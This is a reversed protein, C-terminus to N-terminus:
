LGKALKDVTSSLSPVSAKIAVLVAQARAQLPAGAPWGAQPVLAVKFGQAERVRVAALSGGLVGGATSLLESEVGIVALKTNADLPVVVDLTSGDPAAVAYSEVKAAVDPRHRAGTAYAVAEAVEKYFTAAAAGRVHRSHEVALGFGKAAFDTVQAPLGTVGAAVSGAYLLALASPSLAAPDKQVVATAAGLLAAAGDKDGLMALGWGGQVAQAASLDGAGAKAKDALARVTAADAKVALTALAWAAAAADAPADVGGKLAKSLVGLLAADPVRRLAALGWLAQAAERGGLEGAKAVLGASAVKVLKGDQVGASGFGWLLRALDAASLEASKSESLDAVTAFLEVDAIGAKGLAEVVYSVESPKISKLNAALPGALEALTRTHEVNAASLAWSLNVLSPGDLSPGLSAAKELVKGWLRRNGRAGLYALAVAADAVDKGTSPAEPSLLAEISSLVGAADGSVGPVQVAPAAAAAFSRVAVLSGCTSRRVTMEAVLQSSQKVASAGLELAGMGSWAATLVRLSSKMKGFSSPCCNAKLWSSNM